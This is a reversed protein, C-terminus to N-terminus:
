FYRFFLFIVQQHDASNTVGGTVTSTGVVGSSINNLLNLNPKQALQLLTALNQLNQNGNIGGNSNSVDTGSM